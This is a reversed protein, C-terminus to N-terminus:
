RWGLSRLGCPSRTTPMPRRPLSSWRCAQWPPRPPSSFVHTPAVFGPTFPAHAPNRFCTGLGVSVVGDVGETPLRIGFQPVLDRQYMPAIEAGTRQRNVTVRAHAWIPLADIGPVARTGAVCHFHTYAVAVIPADTHERLRALACEMEQVSEGTDIAIVGGPGQVFTQNSLGNGVHTWVGPAVVYFREAVREAQEVALRHARQGKPGSVVESEDASFSAALPSPTTM